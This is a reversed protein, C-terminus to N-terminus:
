AASAAVPADHRSVHWTQLAGCVCVYRVDFGDPTPQLSRIQDAFVLDRKGCVTCVNAFM